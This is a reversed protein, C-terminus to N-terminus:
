HFQKDEATPGHSTILIPLQLKNAILDVIEKPELRVLRPESTLM